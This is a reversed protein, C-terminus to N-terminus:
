EFLWCFLKFLYMYNSGTIDLECIGIAIVVTWNQLCNILHFVFKYKWKMQYIPIYQM